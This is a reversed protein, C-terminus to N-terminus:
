LVRLQIGWKPSTRQRTELMGGKLMLTVNRDFVVIWQQYEKEILDLVLPAEDGPDVVVGVGTEPCVAVYCNVMLPGLALCHVKM